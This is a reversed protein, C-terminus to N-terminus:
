QPPCHALPDQNKFAIPPQRISHTTTLKQLIPPPPKVTEIADAYQRPVATPPSPPTMQM